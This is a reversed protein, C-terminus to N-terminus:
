TDADPSGGPDALKKGKASPLPLAQNPAGGVPTIQLKDSNPDGDKELGLVRRAENPTRIGAQVSAVLVTAETLIDGRVFKDTDFAPYTQSGGFLDPDAYLADEIRGLEPGLGFRLWTMLDQELDPRPRTIQAGLLNAPVAMIRAADEVSLHEMEVFQADAPTVGIPKVQAGGAAVLTTESETGEYNARWSERIQDSQEKSVGKPIELALQGAVGRRWMRAEHRQRGLVAAMKDRFVAVKPDAIMQGGNGFGRIHLITSEDVRYRGPGKGVPDVYGPSVQVEYWTKTGEFKPLVQAPHLAWWDVIRGDVTNKWIYANEFWSLSEEVTEWFAFRTQVDNTQDSRSGNSFLRAQWVTDVRLRDAGEGRWCCLKLSAVAEARLRAARHLAPIGRAERDGVQTQLNRLGSYGWRVMDTLAFARTEVARGERTAIIM